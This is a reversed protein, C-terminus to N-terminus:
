FLFMNFFAKIIIKARITIRPMIPGIKVKLYNAFPESVTLIFDNKLPRHYLPGVM